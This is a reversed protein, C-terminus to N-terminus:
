DSQIYLARHALRTVIRVDGVNARSVLDQLVKTAKDFFHVCRKCLAGIPVECPVVGTGTYDM